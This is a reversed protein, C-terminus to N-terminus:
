PPSVTFFPAFSFSHRTFIAPPTAGAAAMAANVIGSRGHHPPMAAPANHSIAQASFGHLGCLLDDDADQCQPKGCEDQVREADELGGAGAAAPSVTFPVQHVSSLSLPPRFLLGPKPRPEKKLRPPAGGLPTERVPNWRRAGGSAGYVGEKIGKYARQSSIWNVLWLLIAQAAPPVGTLLEFSLAAQAAMGLIGSMLIPFLVKTWRPLTHWSPWNELLYAM